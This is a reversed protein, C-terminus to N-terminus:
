ILLNKLYMEYSKDHVLVLQLLHHFLIQLSVEFLSGFINSFMLSTSKISFDNSASQTSCDTFKKM